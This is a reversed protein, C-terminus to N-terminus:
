GKAAANKPEESRQQKEIKENESVMGSVSKSKETNDVSKDVSNGVVKSFARVPELSMKETVHGYLNMTTLIDKHGLRKQVTKMDVGQSLLYTASSHRLDHFSIRKIDLREVLRTWMRTMSHPVFPTGDEHGFLLFHNKGREDKFGIWKDGITNREKWREKRYNWLEHMIEGPFTVIRDQDNKVGKLRLGEAKTYQLSHCINISGDEFYINKNKDRLPGKGFNLDKDLDIGLVEGRRLGGVLALKIILRHYNPINKIEEFVLEIEDEDYIDKERRKVTPKKVALAPDNDIIEWEKAKKFLSRLVRHERELVYQGAGNKKEKNLYRVLDYTKIDKMWRTEFFPLISCDLYVSYNELTGIDLETEGFEEKWMKVFQSFRVKTKAKRNGKLVEAEFLVLKKEAETDNRAEVTTFRRDRKKGIYGLEVRLEYKGPGVEKVSSM